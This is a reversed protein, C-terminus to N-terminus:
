REVGPNDSEAWLIPLLADRLHPKEYALRILKGRLSPPHEERILPERDTLYHSKRFQGKITDWLADLPARGREKKIKEFCAVVHKCVRNAGKPDRVKPASATGRPRGHLYGEKNAWYEPGQYQWFPCSCSVLINAKAPSRVLGLMKPVVRIKVDYDSVGFRWETEARNKSRLDVRLGSARQRIDPDTRDLIDLIRAACKKNEFGHGEPIVKASGPNNPVAPQEQKESKNKQDERDLTWPDTLVWTTTGEPIYRERPNRPTGKGEDGLDQPWQDPPKEERYFSM